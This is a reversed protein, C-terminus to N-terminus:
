EVTDNSKEQLVEVLKYSDWLDGQFRAFPIILIFQVAFMVLLRIIVIALPGWLLIIANEILVFTPAFLKSVTFSALNILFLGFSFIFYLLLQLTSRLSRHSNHRLEVFKEAPFEETKVKLLEKALYFNIEHSIISGMIALGLAYTITLFMMLPMGWATLFEHPYELIYIVVVFLFGLLIGVLALIADFHVDPRQLKTPKTTM